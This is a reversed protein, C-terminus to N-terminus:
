FEPNESHMFDAYVCTYIIFLYFISSSHNFIRFNLKMRNVFLISFSFIAVMRNLRFKNSSFCFDLFLKLTVGNRSSRIKITSDIVKSIRGAKRSVVYEIHVFFFIYIKTKKRKKKCKCYSSQWSSITNSNKSFCNQKIWM